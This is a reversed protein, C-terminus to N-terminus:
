RAGQKGVEGAAAVTTAPGVGRVIALQAVMKKLQALERELTETKSVNQTIDALRLKDQAELTELRNKLASNEDRLAKVEADQNKKLQQTASVNLMAIANYDV